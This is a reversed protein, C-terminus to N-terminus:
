FRYSLDVGITRPQNTAVRNYSANPLTLQAVNELYAQKNTLNNVFLAATWGDDSNLGARLNTLDYSPLPAQSNNVVGNATALDVRSGTYTNEIRSSFEIKDSVNTHYNLSVTATVKPVDPLLEGALFGHSSEALEAHTYGVSGALTLSHLVAARLELEGGYIHASNVNDFLPYGAPLEELQIDRWNEFFVSGNVHLRGDLFKAKEGVEYSWLSDPKYSVPAVGNAYGLGVLQSYMFKDFNSNGLSPLPQNGGGPRFGRAITAYVMADKDIDYSLDFKPNVGANSQTVHQTSPANTGTSSGIGSFSMDLVSDYHYWRLGGTAHLKETIAYTAEGFVADQKINTPQDLTFLNNITDGFAAPNPIDTFLQWNSQFKSYYLGGVWSLPGDGTSAARIEESFQNSPDLELGFIPGTGNAGYFSASSTSVGFGGGLSPVNESGDQIMRSLRHWNSTASTLDFADFKYDLNLSNITISDSYPEAISFPQYHAETGPNSDYVSPGDQNIEQYFVSPTITLEATPKWTLTARGGKLTEANSGKHDELVPSAQVDGRVTGGGTAVPFNGVVLRDIWGSTTAQSAVLRLALEDKALPLNLM